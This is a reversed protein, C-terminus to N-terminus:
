SLDALRELGRVEAEIREREEATGSYTASYGNMMKLHSAASMVRSLPGKAREYVVAPALEDSTGDLSLLYLDHGCEAVLRPKRRKIWDAAQDNHDLDLPAM